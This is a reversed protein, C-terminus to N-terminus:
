PKSLILAVAAVTLGAALVQKLVTNGAKRSGWWAGLFGGAVAIALWLLSERSPTQGQRILGAMGALSNVLIFLSSVAATEKLTGWYLLLILPSLIIGGGIGIVGSAFGLAAGIFLGLAIPCPRVPKEIGRPNFLGLIRAVALLLCIGLTRKYMVPDLKVFSGLFAAPISLAAFPWFLRWRFYGQRYYHFFSIGAVCINLLLVGPRILAISVGRLTLVALYGSAGGHGVSSYFFAVIFLLTLILLLSTVPEFDPIPNSL